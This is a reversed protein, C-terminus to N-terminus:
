RSISRRRWVLVAAGLALLLVSAAVPFDWPSATRLLHVFRDELMPGRTLRWPWTKYLATWLVGILAVGVLTRAAGRRFAFALAGRM